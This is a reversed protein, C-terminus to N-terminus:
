PAHWEDDKVKNFKRSKEPLFHKEVPITYRRPYTRRFTAGTSSNWHSPNVINTSTENGLVQAHVPMM